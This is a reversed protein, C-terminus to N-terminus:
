AKTKTKAKEEEAKVKEEEAKLHEAYAKAVAPIALIDKLKYYGDIVSYFPLAGTCSHPLNFEDALDFFQELPLPDGCYKTTKDAPVTAIKALREKARDSIGLMTIGKTQLKYRNRKATDRLVVYSCCM